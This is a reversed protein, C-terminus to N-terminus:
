QDDGEPGDLVARIEAAHTRLARVLGDSRGLEERWQAQQIYAIALAEVRALASEAARLRGKLTRVVGSRRNDNDKWFDREAEAHEARRKWENNSEMWRLEAEHCRETREREAALAENVLAEVHPTLYEAVEDVAGDCVGALRTGLATVQDETLRYPEPATM